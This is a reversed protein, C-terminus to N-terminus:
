EKCIDFTMQKLYLKIIFYIMLSFYSRPVHLIFILPYYSVESVGYGVVVLGNRDVRATEILGQGTCTGGDRSQGMEAEGARNNDMTPHGRGQM